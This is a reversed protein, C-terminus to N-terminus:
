RLSADRIQALKQLREIDVLMDAADGGAQGNRRRIVIVPPNV